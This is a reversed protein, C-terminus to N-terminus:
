PVNNKKQDDSLVEAEDMISQRNKLDRAIEQQASDVARKRMREVDDQPVTPRKRAELDKEIDPEGWHYAEEFLRCFDADSIPADPVQVLPIYRMRSTEPKAVYVLPGNAVGYTFFGNYELALVAAPDPQWSTRLLPLKALGYQEADHHWKAVANADRLLTTWGPTNRILNEIRVVAVEISTRPEQVCGCALPLKDNEWGMVSFCWQSAFKTRVHYPLAFAGFAAKAETPGPLTAAYLTRNAYSQIFDAHSEPRATMPHQTTQEPLRPSERQPQGIRLLRRSALLDEINGQGGLAKTYAAALKRQGKQNSSPILEAHTSQGDKLPTPM